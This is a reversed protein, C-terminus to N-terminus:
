SRTSQIRALAILAEDVLRQAAAADPLHLSEALADGELGGRFRGELAMRQADGLKGLASELRAMREPEGPIGDRACRDSPFGEVLREDSHERYWLLALNAGVRRFWGAWDDPRELEHLHKWATVIADEVLKDVVKPRRLRAGLYAALRPAHRQCLVAWAENDGEQAATALETDSRLENM